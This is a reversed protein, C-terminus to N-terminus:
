PRPPDVDEPRAMTSDPARWDTSVFRRLFRWGDDVPVLTDRYRGCHDLGIETVVTFYSEVEAREPTLAVFRTNTVVHRVIRRRGGEDAAARRATRRAEDDPVSPGDGLFAVIADRGRLPARGRIELEGDDCFTSAMEALRFGDGAWSYRAITDRIRERAVLEWIEM